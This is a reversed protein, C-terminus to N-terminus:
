LMGSIIDHFPEGINAEIVGAPDVQSTFEGPIYTFPFVLGRKDVGRSIMKSLPVLLTKNEVLV